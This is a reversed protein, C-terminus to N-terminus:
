WATESELSMTHQAKNKSFLLILCSKPWSALLVPCVGASGAERLDEKRLFPTPPNAAYFCGAQLSSEQSLCRSGPAGGVTM